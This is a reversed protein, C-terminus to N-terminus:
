RRRRAAVLAFPLALWGAAADVSSCSGCPSGGTDGALEAATSCDACAGATDATEGSAEPTSPTSPTSPTTPTTPAGSDGTEGSSPASAGLATGTWLLAVLVSGVRGGMAKTYRARPQGAGRWANVSVEAGRRPGRREMPDGSGGVSSLGGMDLCAVM